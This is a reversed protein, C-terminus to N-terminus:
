IRFLTRTELFPINFTEIRYCKICRDLDRFPKCLFATHFHSTLPIFVREFNRFKEVQKNFEIHDRCNECM